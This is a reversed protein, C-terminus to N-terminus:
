IWWLDKESVSNQSSVDSGSYGTCYGAPQIMMLGGETVDLGGGHGRCRSIYVADVVWIGSGNGCRPNKAARSCRM